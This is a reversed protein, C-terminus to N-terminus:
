LRMKLNLLIYLKGDSLYILVWQIWILRLKANGVKETSFEQLKCHIIAKCINGLRKEGIELFREDSDLLIIHQFTKSLLKLSIRGIGSGVDLAVDFPTVNDINQMLFEKSKCIDVEDLYELGGLM